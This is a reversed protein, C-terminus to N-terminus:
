DVMMEFLWDTVQELNADDSLGDIHSGSVVRFQNYSHTLKTPHKEQIEKTWYQVWQKYVGPFNFRGDPEVFKSAVKGDLDIFIGIISPIPKLLDPVYQALWYRVIM